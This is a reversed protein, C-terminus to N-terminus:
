VWVDVDRLGREMRFQVTFYDGGRGELVDYMFTPGEDYASPDLGM